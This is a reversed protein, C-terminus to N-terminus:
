TDYNRKSMAQILRLCEPEGNSKVLYRDAGLRMALNKDDPWDSSSHVIIFPKLVSPNDQFWRLVDFGSLEPMKLDVILLHIAEREERTLKSWWEVAERGDGCERIIQVKDVNKLALKFLLRDDESDDILVINM